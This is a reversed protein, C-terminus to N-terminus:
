RRQRHPRYPERYGEGPENLHPDPGAGPGQNRAGPWAILEALTRRALVSPGGGLLVAALEQRLWRTQSAVSPPNDDLLVHLVAYVLDTADDRKEGAPFTMADRVAELLKRTDADM